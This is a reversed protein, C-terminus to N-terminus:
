LDILKVNFAHTMSTLLRHMMTTREELLRISLLIQETHVSKANSQLTLCGTVFGDIEVKSDRCGDEIDMMEFLRLADRPKVDMSELFAEMKPNELHEKFEDLTIYGDGSTDWASFMGALNDIYRSKESLASEIMKEKDNEFVEVANKCFIGIIVNLMCFATFIIYVVFLIEAVPNITGLAHVVVEWSLGGAISMFLTLISFAISSFHHVLESNRDVDNGLAQQEAVYDAVMQTIAIGFMYMCIFTLLFAWVATGLTHAVALMLIRVDKLFKIVRMIRLVRLLRFVRLLRIVGINSAPSAGSNGSVSNSLIVELTSVTVVIADFVNWRWNPGCFFAQCKFAWLRLFLEVVFLVAFVVDIAQVSAPIEPSFSLEVQVAMFFSNLTLLGVSLREFLNSTVFGRLSPPEREPLGRGASQLLVTDQIHTVRANRRKDKKAKAGTQEVEPSSLDVLTDVAGAEQLWPPRYAKLLAAHHRNLAAELFRCIERGEPSLDPLEPLAFSSVGQAFDSRSEVRHEVQPVPVSPLASFSPTGHKMEVPRGIM